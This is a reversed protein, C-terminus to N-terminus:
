HVYHLWYPKQILKMVLQTMILIFVLLVSYRCCNWPSALRIRFVNIGNWPSGGGELQPGRWDGDMLLPLGAKPLPLGDEEVM